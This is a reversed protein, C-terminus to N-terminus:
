SLRKEEIPGSVQVYFYLRLREISYFYRIHLPVVCLNQPGFSHRM